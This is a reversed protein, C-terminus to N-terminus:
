DGPYYITNYVTCSQEFPNQYAHPVDALFRVAQKECLLIEEDDIVLKLRGTVVLIYEEVGKNHRASRHDCGPAFEIYFTETSRIPDYAFMPYASMRGDAERIATQALADVVEYMARRKEFFASLPLKLGTAIKWLTTITPMSQGREIQGLMPKSVGTLGAAEDLSMGREARVERLKRGIATMESDM